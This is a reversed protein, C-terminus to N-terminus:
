HNIKSEIFKLLNMIVAYFNKLEDLANKNDQFLIKDVDENLTNLTENLDECFLFSILLYKENEKKFIDNIDNILENKQRYNKEFYFPDREYISQKFFLLFEAIYKCLKIEKYTKDYDINGKEESRYKETFNTFFSLFFKHFDTKEFNKIFNKVFDHSVNFNITSFKDSNTKQKFDLIKKTLIEIIQKIEEVFESMKDNCLSFNALNMKIFKRSNLNVLKSIINDNPEQGNEEAAGKEKNVTITLFTIRNKKSHFEKQSSLIKKIMNIEYITFLLFDENETIFELNEVNIDKYYNAIANYKNLLNELLSEFQEKNLLFEEIKDGFIDDNELDEWNPRKHLTSCLCKTLFEEFPKSMTVEKSKMVFKDNKFIIDKNNGNILMLLTMGYNMLLTLNPSSSQVMENKNPAYYIKKIDEPMYKKNLGFDILKLEDNKDVVFSHISVFSINNLNKEFIEFFNKNIQIIEKEEFTHKKCHEFLSKCEEDCEFILYILKENDNLKFEQIGIFKLVNKNNSLKNFNEFEKTYVNEDSYKQKIERILVNTYKDDNKKYLAKKFKSCDNEFGINFDTLIKITFFPHNFYDDWGIREYQNVVLLKDILDALFFDKPRKYSLKFNNKIFTRPDYPNKGFHSYYIIVGLSWLDAKSDYDEKKIVEPAMTQPTGLITNKTIEKIEKSFGFDSMKPIFETKEKNTYKVLINELKIDRHVINNERMKKLAKNLQSFLKFIEETSFPSKKINHMHNELTDDCLELVITYYDKNELLEHFKITNECECRKLIDVERKITKVLYDKDKIDVNDLLVKKLAVEQSNSKKIAKYVKGCLGEGIMKVVKYEESM